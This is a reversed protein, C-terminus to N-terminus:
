SQVGLDYAIFQLKRNINRLKLETDIRADPLLNKNLLLKELFERVCFLGHIDFGFKNCRDIIEQAINM